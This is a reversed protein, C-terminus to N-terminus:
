LRSVGLIAFVIFGVGLIFVGSMIWDMAQM